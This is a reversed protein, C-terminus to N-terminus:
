AEEFKCADQETQGNRQKMRLQRVKEALLITLQTGREALAADANGVSQGFLGGVIQKETKPIKMANNPRARM